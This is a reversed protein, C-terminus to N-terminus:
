HKVEVLNQMRMNWREFNLDYNETRDNPSEDILYVSYSRRLIWFLISNLVGGEKRVFLTSLPLPTLELLGQFLGEAQLKLMCGTM